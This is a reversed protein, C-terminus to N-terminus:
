HAPSEVETIRPAAKDHLLLSPGADGGVVVQMAEVAGDVDPMPIRTWDNRADKRWLEGGENNDDEGTTIWLAGDTTTSLSAIGEHFPADVLRWVTGDFHVLYPATCWQAGCREIFRGGVFIDKESRGALGRVFFTGPKPTPLDEIVGAAQAGSWRMVAVRTAMRNEIRSGRAIIADDLGSSTM